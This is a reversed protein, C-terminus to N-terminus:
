RCCMIAQRYCRHVNASRVYATAFNMSFTSHMIQPMMLAGACGMPWGLTQVCKEPGGATGKVPWTGAHERVM